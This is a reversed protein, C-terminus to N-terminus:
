YGIKGPLYRRKFKRLPTEVLARVFFFKSMTEWPSRIFDPKERFFVEPYFYDSPFSIGIEHKLKGTRKPVNKDLSNDGARRLFTAHVYPADIFIIKRSNRDQIMRGQNDIWGWTGHPKDSSLGPINRNVARLNYHGKRRGFKYQGAEKEQYHYIDGVLNITPTIISEADHKQANNRIFDTVKKISEDWWIEDGDVVLFWDSETVDLMDQRVITFEEPTVSGFLRLKVKAPYRKKIEQLIKITGDTSGTDWLLVEDVYDIVSMVSFWVFRAENKVLTHATITTM